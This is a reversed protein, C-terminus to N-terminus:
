PEGKLLRRGSKFPEQLRDYAEKQKFSSKFYVNCDTHSHDIIDHAIPPRKDLDYWVFDIDSSLRPNFGCGESSWNSAKVM